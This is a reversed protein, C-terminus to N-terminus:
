TLEKIRAVNWNIWKIIQNKNYGRRSMSQEVHLAWMLMNDPVPVCPTLNTNFTKM